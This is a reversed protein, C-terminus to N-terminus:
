LWYRGALKVKELPQANIAGMWVMRLPADFETVRLPFARGPSQKVLVTVKHATCLCPRRTPAFGVRCSDSWGTTIPATTSTVFCSFGETYLTVCPSEALACATIHTFASCAGFIDLAPASGSFDRPLSRSRPFHAFCAGMLEAPTTAIAHTCSSSRLLV